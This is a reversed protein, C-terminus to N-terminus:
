EAKGMYGGETVHYKGKTDIAFEQVDYQWEHITGNVLEVDFSPFWKDSLDVRVDKVITPVIAAIEKRVAKDGDMAREVYDYLAGFTEPMAKEDSAKAKQTTIAAEIDRKEAELRELRKRVENVALGADLLDITAGIRRALTNKKADLTQIASQTDNDRKLLSPGAEEVFWYLLAMEMETWKVVQNIDCKGLMSGRCQLYDGNLVRMSVGCKKCHCIGRFVNRVNEASYNGHKHTGLIRQVKYFLDESIAPPFAKPIREGKINLVGILGEYRLLQWITAQSWGKAKKFRFTPINEDNLMKCIAVVGNDKVYANFIKEIVQKNPLPSGKDHRQVYQKTEFDYKLHPPIWPGLPAPKGERALQYAAKKADRVGRIRKENEGYAITAKTSGVVLTSTQNITEENYEIDDTSTIVFHGKSVIENKLYAMADIVHGRSIRDLDRCIIGVGTPLDKLIKRFNPTPGAKVSIGRDFHEAIVQIKKRKACERNYRNQSAESDGDEQKASSFRGWIIAQRHTAIAQTKMGLVM